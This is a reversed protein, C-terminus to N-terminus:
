GLISKIIDVIDFVSAKKTGEKGEAKKGTSPHSEVMAAVKQVFGKASKFSSGMNVDRIWRINPREQPLIQKRDVLTSIGSVMAESLTGPGPKCVLFDSMAFYMPVETTYTLIKHPYPLNLEKLEKALDENYGCLFIIQFGGDLHCLAQALEFMRGSGTGGYMMCGTLLDPQLGLKERSQAPNHDVTEYFAPNVPLGEIRFTLEKPHPKKLVQQYSKESCAVAYYDKQKPFWTYKMSEMYDTILVVFPIPRKQTYEAVAERLGQNSLPMVSIVLDPKTEKKWYDAIRKKARGRGLSINLMTLGYFLYCFLGSWNKGLVFHNYVDENTYKTFRPFLDMDAILESYPNCLTVEYDGHRNLVNEIARATARHGGGSDTYLITIRKPQEM